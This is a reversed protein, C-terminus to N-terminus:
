SKQQKEGFGLIYTSKNRSLVVAVVGIPEFPIRQISGLGLV